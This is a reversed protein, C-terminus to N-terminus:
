KPLCTVTVTLNKNEDHGVKTSPYTGAPCICTVTQSTTGADPGGGSVSALDEDSLEIMEVGVIMEAQKQNSLDM